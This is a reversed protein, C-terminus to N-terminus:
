SAVRRGVVILPKPAKRRCDAAAWVAAKIADARGVSAMRPGDAGPMTRAALVQATLHESGDHHFVGEALLRGLEQVTVGVRGQGKRSRVDKLAPDEVLSAGVTATRRFGSAALTEAAEALDAMDEVSVITWDEVKWALALSVGGGFWSEIAAAYPPEDPLAAALAAWDEAEVIPNGRTAAVPNLQWVNLYQSRFGEMPNPDDAQPDAEGALAKTYKGAIM